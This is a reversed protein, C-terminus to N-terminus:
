YNCPKTVLGSNETIVGTSSNWQLYVVGKLWTPYDTDSACAGPPQYGKGAASSATPTLDYITSPNTAAQTAYNWGMCAVTNTFSACNPTGYRNTVLDSVNNFSPSEYLNIGLDNSGDFSVASANTGGSGACYPGQCTTALGLLINQLGTGGITVTTSYPAHQSTGLVLPYIPYNPTGLCAGVTEQDINNYVSIKWPIATASSQINIGGQAYGCSNGVSSAPGVNNGYLTNNYFKMTLPNVSLGQYFMQMGFREAGALINDKIVVTNTYDLADLTDTMMSEGDTGDCGAPQLNNYSFNQTAFIHTGPNSDYNKTGIIDIAADYYGDCRGASNQAINGVIAWYDVGYGSGNNQGQNQSGFANANNYAINNIFAIHHRVGQYGNPIGSTDMVFAFGSQSTSYGQSVKWGEVAWNNSDIDIGGANASGTGVISCAGVYSGGCLLTAFYIGGQSDIGGSTSPCGSVAGFNQLSTYSGGAAIIVDGCVVAHNPSAWPTTPSTGSNNDSGTPSIYYTHLPTFTTSSSGGGGPSPSPSPSSNGAPADASPVSSDAISSSFKSTCNQFLLMQIGLTAIILIQRKKQTL